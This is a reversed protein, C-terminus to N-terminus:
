FEIRWAPTVATAVAATMQRTIAALPSPAARLMPPLRRVGQLSAESWCFISGLDFLIRRWRLLFVGGSAATVRHCDGEYFVETAAQANCTKGRSKARM